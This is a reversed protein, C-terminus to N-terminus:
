LRRQPRYISALRKCNMCLQVPYREGSARNERIEINNRQTRVLDIEKDEFSLSPHTGFPTRVEIEYREVLSLCRCGTQKVRIRRSTTSIGYNSCNPKSCYDIINPSMVMEEVHDLDEDSQLDIQVLVVDGEKYYQITSPEPAHTVVIEIAAVVKGGSDLLAIDPRCSSFDYEEVVKAASSLLNGSQRSGCYRCTWATSLVRNETLLKDLYTALYKKFSYHLVSEPTCNPTSVTHAFHPRRSGRGTRGSQKLIMENKCEPCFYKKHKVAATIRVLNGDTDNATSYLIEKRM